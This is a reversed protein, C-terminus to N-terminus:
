KARPHFKRHVERLRGSTVHTYIETTAISSHGLLEQIVRLDAGNELLHTAFSHRLMHPTVNREICSRRIRRKIRGWLTERAFQSGRNTLFVVGPSKAKVLKPRATDIYRRLLDVAVRHIPVVREKNGKGIVTAFGEDLHLQELRLDKLESLRLGSAYALELIAQDCLAEPTDMPLPRLIQAIEANTLDKPLRKARRPLALNAAPNSPLFNNQETFRFFARFAAVRLYVSASSMKANDPRNAAPKRDRELELFDILHQTTVQKWDTLGHEGAWVVFKKFQASYTKQTNESQGREHRIHFLFDEILADM